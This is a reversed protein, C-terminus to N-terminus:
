VIGIDIEVIHLQGLLAILRVWTPSSDILSLRQGPVLRDLRIEQNLLESVVRHSIGYFLIGQKTHHYCYLKMKSGFCSGYAENM